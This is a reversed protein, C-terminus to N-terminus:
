SNRTVFNDYWDGIMTTVEEDTMTTEDASPDDVNPESMPNVAHIALARDICEQKTKTEITDPVYYERDEDLWGLYTHDAPNYWYGRDKVFGPVIKRGMDNIQFMYEIVPM